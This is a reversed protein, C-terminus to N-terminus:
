EHEKLNNRLETLHAEASPFMGFEMEIRAALILSEAYDFGNKSEKASKLLDQELVTLCEQVKGSKYLEKVRLKQSSFVFSEM